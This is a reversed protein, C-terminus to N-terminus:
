GHCGLHTYWTYYLSNFAKAFNLPHSLIIFGMAKGPKGQTCLWLEMIRKMDSQYSNTQCKKDFMKMAYCGIIAARTTEFWISSKICSQLLEMALATSNSYYSLCRLLSVGANSYWSANHPASNDNNAVLLDSWSLPEDGNPDKLREDPLKEIARHLVMFHNIIGFCVFAVCSVCFSACLYVYIHSISYTPSVYITFCILFYRFCISGYVFNFKFHINALLM